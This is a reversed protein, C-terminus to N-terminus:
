LLFSRLGITVGTTSVVATSRVASECCEREGGKGVQNGCLLCRMM